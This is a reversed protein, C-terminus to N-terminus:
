QQEKSQEDSIVTVASFYFELDPPIKFVSVYVSMLRYLKCIPSRPPLSVFM